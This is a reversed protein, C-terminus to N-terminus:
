HLLSGDTHMRVDSLWTVTVKLGVILAHM